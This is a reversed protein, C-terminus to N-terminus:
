FKINKQKFIFFTSEFQRSICLISKINFNCPVIFGESLEKPQTMMYIGYGNMLWYGTISFFYSCSLFIKCNGRRIHLNDSRCADTGCVVPM